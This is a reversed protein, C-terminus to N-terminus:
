ASISRRRRRTFTTLIGATAVLLGVSPEPVTAAGVAASAISVADLEFKLESGLDGDDLLSFRIYGVQSLETDSIDLWKGGGSGDLLDLIDPNDNPDDYFLGDFSSLPETFPKHFDALNTLAVDNYGNAPIDFDVSGLSVWTFGDASVDVYASDVVGTSVPDDAQSNPYNIDILFLNSFVGIEPGPDQPIVYNSLRLTLHGSEGVSVIESALFPPNFPTVAGPFVGEGTFREPKGLASLPTDFGPAATTGQDYSVVEVAHQATALNTGSLFALFTLSAMLWKRQWNM